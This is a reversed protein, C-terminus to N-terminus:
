LSSNVDGGTRRQRVLMEIAAAQNHQPLFGMGGYWFKEGAVTREGCFCGMFFRSFFARRVVYLVAPPLGWLGAREFSYLTRVRRDEEVNSAKRKWVNRSYRRATLSLAASSAHSAVGSIAAHCGRCRLVSVAPLAADFETWQSGLCRVAAPVVAVGNRIELAGAFM